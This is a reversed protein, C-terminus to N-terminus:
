KEVLHELVHVHMAHCPMAAERCAKIFELQFTIRGAYAALLIFHDLEQDKLTDIVVM